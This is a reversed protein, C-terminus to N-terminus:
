VGALQRAQDWSPLAASGGLGTVCYAGAAAGIRGAAALDLGRLRAAILGGYFADGAGTTDLLEGPPEVAEIWTLPEGVQSLVAGRPGLKVGLVGPAGCQRYVDLIAEPEHLGTQAEAEVLSPVYYDLHPLIEDLPSMGGGHGAADLATLCGTARVERLLQPLDRELQPLLSYYGLLMCRARSLLDLRRRYFALDMSRPAGQSHAFSRQGQRDVMVITVSSPENADRELATTDIGQSQYQEEIIRGWPDGGIRSLAAVRAGLKALAAGANSVIGGTTAMIPDTRHLADVGIPESLSLPRVVIDVTCSGCVVCDITKEM